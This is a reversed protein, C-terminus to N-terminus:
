FAAITSIYRYNPTAGGSINVCFDMEGDVSLGDGYIWDITSENETTLGIGKNNADCM